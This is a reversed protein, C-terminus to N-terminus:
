TVPVLLNNAQALITVVHYGFHSMRLVSQVINDIVFNDVRTISGERPKIRNTIQILTNDVRFAIWVFILMFISM